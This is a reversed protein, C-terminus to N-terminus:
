IIVQGQWESTSILLICEPIDIDGSLVNSLQENLTGKPLQFWCYILISEVLGFLCSFMEKCVFSTNKFLVRAVVM